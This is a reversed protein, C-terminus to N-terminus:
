ASSGSVSDSRRDAYIQLPKARGEVGEKNIVVEEVGSMSPLDFMTDLLISEMISRLGRAGTKRAIARRAVSRLADDSFGLRLGEMEFLRQYQKVLANKPKVLIEVQALGRQDLDQHFRLIRQDFLVLPQELHLAQPEAERIVGEAGHGPTRDRALRAGAAQARDHLADEEVRHEVQRAHAPDLFHDDVLLDDLAAGLGKLDIRITAAVRNGSAGGLDGPVSRSRDTRCRWM